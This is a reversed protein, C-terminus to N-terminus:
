ARAASLAVLLADLDEWTLAAALRISLDQGTMVVNVGECNSWPTVTITNDNHTLLVETCQSKITELKM